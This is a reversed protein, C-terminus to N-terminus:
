SHPTARAGAPSCPQLAARGGVQLLGGQLLHQRGQQLLHAWVGPQTQVRLVQPLAHAVAQGRGAPLLPGRDEQWLRRVSGRARRDYVAHVPTLPSLVCRWFVPRFIMHLWWLVPCSQFSRWYYSPTRNYVWELSMHCSVCVCVCQLEDCSSSSCFAASM